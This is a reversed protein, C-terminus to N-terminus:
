LSDIYGKPLKRIADWNARTKKTEPFITKSVALAGPAAMLSAIILHNAPIKFNIYAALVSGAVTAFGGTMVSFIESQTM